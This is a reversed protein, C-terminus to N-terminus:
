DEVRIYWFRRIVSEVSIQELAMEADTKERPYFMYMGNTEKRVQEDALWKRPDVLEANQSILVIHGEPCNDVISELLQRNHVRIERICNDYAKKADISLVTRPAKPTIKDKKRNM